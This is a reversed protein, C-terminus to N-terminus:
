PQPVADGTGMQHPVDESEDIGILHLPNRRVMMTIEGETMGLDLLCFIFQRLGEVPLAQDLQGFDTSLVCHEAGVARIQDFATGIDETYNAPRSPAQYRRVRYSVHHTYFMWTYEILAGLEVAKIQDDVSMGTFKPSPHTVLIRRVGVRHAEEVLILNQEPSSVGTELLIDHEAIIELIRYMEPKLKGNDFPTVYRIPDADLSNQPIAWIRQSLHASSDTALCVFRAGKGYTLSTFVADPNIGGVEANLFIGGIIEIDPVLKQLISAMGASNCYLDRLVIARLGADKASQVAVMPDLIARLPEGAASSASGRIWGVHTHYGVAGKLLQRALADPM